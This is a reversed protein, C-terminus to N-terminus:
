AHNKKRRAQTCAICFTAHNKYKNFGQRSIDKIHGCAMTIRVYYRDLFKHSVIDRHFHGLCNPNIMDKEKAM